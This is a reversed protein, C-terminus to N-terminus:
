WCGTQEDSTQESPTGNPTKAGVADRLHLIMREKGYNVPIAQFSLLNFCGERRFKVDARLVSSVEIRGHCGQRELSLKRVVFSLLVHVEIKRPELEIFLAAHRFNRFIGSFLVELKLIIILKSFVFYAIKFLIIFSLLIFTSILSSWSNITSM